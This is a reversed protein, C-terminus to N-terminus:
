SIKRKEKSDVRILKLEIKLWIITLVSYPVTFYVIRISYLTEPQLLITEKSIKIVKKENRSKKM